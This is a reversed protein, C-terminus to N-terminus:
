NTSNIQDSSMATDQEVSGAESHLRKREQRKAIKQQQKEKRQQEKQRKKLSQPGRGPM